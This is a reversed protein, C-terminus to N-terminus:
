EEEEALWTRMVQALGGPDAKIVDRLRGALLDAKETPAPPSELLAGSKQEIRKAEEVVGAISRDDPKEGPTALLERPSSIQVKRRRQRRALVVAASLALLLIAAAGAKRLIELWASLPSV